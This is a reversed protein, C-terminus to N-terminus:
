DDGGLALDPFSAVCVGQEGPVTNFTCGYQKGKINDECMLILMRPPTKREPVIIVIRYLNRKADHTSWTRSM